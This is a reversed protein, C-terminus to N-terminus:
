DMIPKSNAIHLEVYISELVNNAACSLNDLIKFNICNRIHIAVGGGKKTHRDKHCLQYGQLQVIDLKTKYKDM